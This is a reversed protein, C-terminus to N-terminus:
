LKMWYHETVKEVSSLIDKMPLMEFKLSGSMAMHRTDDLQVHSLNM